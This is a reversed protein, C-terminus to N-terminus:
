NSFNTTSFVEPPGSQGCRCAPNRPLIPILIGRLKRKVLIFMRTKVQVVCFGFGKVSYVVGLRNVLLEKWTHSRSHFRDSRDQDQGHLASCVQKIRSPLGRGM